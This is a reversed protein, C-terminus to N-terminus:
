GNRNVKRHRDPLTAKNGELRARLNAIIIAIVLLFLVDQAINLYNAFSLDAYTVYDACFRVFGSITALAIGFGAGTFWSGLAVPIMYYIILSYDGTKYDIFGLLFVLLIDVVAWFWNPLRTWNIRANQM